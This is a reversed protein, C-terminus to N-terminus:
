RVAYLVTEIASICSHQKVFLRYKGSGIHHILQPLNFYDDFHHYLCVCMTPLDRKLTQEAGRIAHQESGEVDLAIQVVKRDAAIEDIRITDVMYSHTSHMSTSVHATLGSNSTDEEFPLQIDDDWLIKKHIEIEPNRGFQECLKSYWLNSPEFAMVRVDPNNNIARVIHKGNFAGAFVFSGDSPIEGVLDNGFYAHGEYISQDWIGGTLLNEIRKRYVYKSKQDALLGISTDCLAKNKIIFSYAEFSRRHYVPFYYMENPVIQATLDLLGATMIVAVVDPDMSNLESFPIVPVGAISTESLTRTSDCVGYPIPLLKGVGCFEEIFSGVYWGAGWLVLKRRYMMEITRHMFALDITSIKM